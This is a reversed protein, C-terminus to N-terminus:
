CNQKNKRNWLNRVYTQITTKVYMYKYWFTMFKSSSFGIIEDDPTLNDARVKGRKTYIKHNPTVQIVHGNETEIKLFYNFGNSKQLNNWTNLVPQLEVTNTKESFSYVLDGIKIDQIPIEGKNTKVLTNKRLCEDCVIMNFQDLVGKDQTKSLLIQNNAIVIKTCTYEYNGTWKSILNSDIGYELFDNYTQEVLQINPVLILV